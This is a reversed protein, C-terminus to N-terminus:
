SPGPFLAAEVMECISHGLHLCAEQVRATDESPVRICIKAVDAVKGGLAGTLTVTTMGAQGAVELARVVNPSNGSTTLGIVVDGPRGTALVQRAFVEDYSYDNSIATIAATADPLSIAALGPRDFAYRGMLEAALHGADQASGGNGFFIVKGGARLSDIIARAVEVTQAAVDGQQMQQKVAITDALRQQVLRVSPSVADSSTMGAM